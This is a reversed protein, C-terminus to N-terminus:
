IYLKGQQTTFFHFSVPPCMNIADVIMKLEANWEFLLEKGSSNKTKNLTVLLGGRVYIM